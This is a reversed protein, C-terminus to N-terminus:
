DLVFRYCTAGTVVDYQDMIFKAGATEAYIHMIVDTISRYWPSVTRGTEKLHQVAPCYAVSVTLCKPEMQFSIVDSAHEKEYASEIAHAIAPLGERSIAELHKSRVNQAYRTLYKEVDERGFHEGLYHIGMNMSSHFDRHFYENDSAKRDIVITDEDVILRGDFIKPDTIILSCSAHDIGVFNYQYNLGVSEVASRYYDCHLCYDRYPKFGTEKQLELLRGKSPCHHMTEMYWGNKENLYMTFDAAEENLTGSWYTYCGRIGEKEVYNILPIGTGTPAFLYDWFEVVAKRGYTEDIYSFLESYAPIFETCSIM